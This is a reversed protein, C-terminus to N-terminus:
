ILRKDGSSYTHDKAKTSQLEVSLKLKSRAQSTAMTKRINLVAHAREAFPAGPLKSGLSSCSSPLESFVLASFVVGKPGLINDCAKFFLVLLSERRAKPRDM